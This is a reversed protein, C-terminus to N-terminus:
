FFVDNTKIFDNTQIMTEKFIFRLRQFSIRTIIEQDDGSKKDHGDPTININYRFRSLKSKIM